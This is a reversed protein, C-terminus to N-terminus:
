GIKNLAWVFLALCGAGIVVNAWKLVAVSSKLSSFQTVDDLAHAAQGNKIEDLMKMVAVHRENAHREHMEFLERSVAPLHPPTDM